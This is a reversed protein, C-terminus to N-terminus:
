SLRCSGQCAGTNSYIHTDYDKKLKDKIDNMIRAPMDKRYSGKQFSLLHNEGEAPPNIRYNFPNEQPYKNKEYLPLAKLVVKDFDDWHSPSLLGYASFSHRWVSGFRGYVSRNAPQMEFVFSQETYISLALTKAGLGEGLTFSFMGPVKVGAIYVDNAPIEGAFFKHLLHYFENDEGHKITYEFIRNLMINRMLRSFNDANKVDNFYASVEDELESQLKTLNVTNIFGTVHDGGKIEVGYDDPRVKKENAFSYLYAGSVIDELKFTMEYAPDIKKFTKQGLGASETRMKQEAKNTFHVTVLTYPSLPSENRNEPKNNFENIIESARENIRVKPRLISKDIVTLENNGRTISQRAEDYSSSDDEQSNSGHQSGEQLQNENKNGLLGSAPGNGTTNQIDGGAGSASVTGKSSQDEREDVLKYHYDVIDSNKEKWFFNSHHSYAPIIKESAAKMEGLKLGEINNNVWVGLDNVAQYPNDKGMTYTYVDTKGGTRTVTFRITRGLFDPNKALDGAPNHEFSFAHGQEYRLEFARAVLRHRKPRSLPRGSPSTVMEGALSKEEARDDGHGVTVAFQRAALPPQRHSEQLQKRLEEAEEEEQYRVYLSVMIGPLTFGANVAIDGLRFGALLNKKRDDRSLTYATLIVDALLKVLLPTASKGVRFAYKKLILSLAKWRADKAGPQGIQASKSLAHLTGAIEFPLFATKLALSFPLKLWLSSLGLGQNVGMGLGGRMLSYVLRRQLSRVGTRALHKRLNGVGELMAEQSRPAPAVRGEKADEYAQRIQLHVSGDSATDGNTSQKSPFTTLQDSLM